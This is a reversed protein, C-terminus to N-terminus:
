SAVRGVWGGGARIFLGEKEQGVGTWSTFELYGRASNVFVDM